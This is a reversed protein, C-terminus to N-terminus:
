RITMDVARPADSPAGGSCTSSSGDPPGSFRINPRPVGGRRDRTDLAASDALSRTGSGSIRSAMCTNCGGGAHGGLAAAAAYHTASIRVTERFNPIWILLRSLVPASVNVTLAASPVLVRNGDVPLGDAQRGDSVSAVLSNEVWVSTSSRNPPRPKAVMKTFLLGESAVRASPLRTTATQGITAANRWFCVSIEQSM